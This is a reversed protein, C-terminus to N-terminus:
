KDHHKGTQYYESLELYLKRWDVCDIACLLMEGIMGENWKEHEDAMLDMVFNKLADEGDSEYEYKEKLIEKCSIQTSEENDIVLRVHYTFDVAENTM